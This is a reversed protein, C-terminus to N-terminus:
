HRSLAYDIGERDMIAIARKEDNGSEVTVMDGTITARAGLEHNLKQIVNSKKYSTVHRDITIKVKM